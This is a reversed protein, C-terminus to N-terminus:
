TGSTPRVDTWPAEGWLHDLTVHFLKALSVFQFLSPANRGTEWNAISNIHVGMRDALDRQSWGLRDRCQTLVRAYTPRETSPVSM